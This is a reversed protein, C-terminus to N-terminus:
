SDGDLAVGVLASLKQLAWGMWQVRFGDDKLFLHHAGDLLLLEFPRLCGDGGAPGDTPSLAEWSAVDEPSPGRDASARTVWLPCPLPPPHSRNHPFEFSALIKGDERYTPWWRQLQDTRFAVQSARAAPQHPLRPCSTPAPLQDRCSTAVAPRSLQDARM